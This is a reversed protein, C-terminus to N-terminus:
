RADYHQCSMNSTSQWAHAHVTYIDNHMCAFNRMFIICSGIYATAVYIYVDLQTSKSFLTCSSYAAYMCIAAHAHQVSQITKYSNYDLSSTNEHGM